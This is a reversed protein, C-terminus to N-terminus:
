YTSATPKLFGALLVPWWYTLSNSNSHGTLHLLTAFTSSKFWWLLISNRYIMTWLQLLCSCLLKHVHRILFVGHIFWDETNIVVSPKLLANRQCRCSLRAASNMLKMLLLTFISTQHVKIIFMFMFMFCMCENLAKHFFFEIYANHCKIRLTLAQTNYQTNVWWSKTKFQGFIESYQM